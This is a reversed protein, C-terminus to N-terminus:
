NQCCSKSNDTSCFTFLVQKWSNKRFTWFIAVIKIRLIQYYFQGTLFQRFWFWNSGIHVKRLRSIKHSITGDFILFQGTLFRRFKAVCCSVSILVFQRLQRARGVRLNETEASRFLLCFLTLVFSKAESIWEPVKLHKWIWKELQSMYMTTTKIWSITVLSQSSACVKLCFYEKCVIDKWRCSKFTIRGLIWYSEETAWHYRTQEVTRHNSSRIERTVLSVKKM